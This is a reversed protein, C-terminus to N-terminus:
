NKIADINVSENSGCECSFMRVALRPLMCRTFASIRESTSSHMSLFRRFFVFLSRFSILAYSVDQDKQAEHVCVTSQYKQLFLKTRVCQDGSEHRFLRGSHNGIFLTHFSPSSPHQSSITEVFRLSHMVFLNSLAM